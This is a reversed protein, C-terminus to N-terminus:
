CRWGQVTEMLIRVMVSVLPFLHVVLAVVLSWLLLCPHSVMRVLDGDLGVWVAVLHIDAVLTEEIVFYIVENGSEYDPDPEVALVSHIHVVQM